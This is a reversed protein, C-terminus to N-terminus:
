PKACAPVTLALFLEPMRDLIRAEMGMLAENRRM